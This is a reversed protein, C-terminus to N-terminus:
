KEREFVEIEGLRTIKYEQRMTVPAMGGVPRILGHHDLAHVTRPSVRIEKPNRGVGIVTFGGGACNEWMSHGAAMVSLVDLMTKTLRM